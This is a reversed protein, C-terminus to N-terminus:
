QSKDSTPELSSFYRRVFEKAGPPIEEKTLAQEAAQQVEVFAGSIYELSSEPAEEPMGRQLISALMRGKTLPGQLTTPNFSNELDPLDGLRNGTGRGAGLLGLGGAYAGAYPDFDELNGFEGKWEALDAMTADMMEMQMLVADFQKLLVAVEEMALAASELDGNEMSTGAKELAKALAEGLESTDAGLMDAMRKLDKMLADTEKKSLKKQDLKEKLERAKKAADGMRGSQIHAALDRSMGLQSTDGALKPRAQDQALGERQMRLKEALNTLRAMARKDSIINNGLDDALTELGELVEQLEPDEASKDSQKLPHVADKLNKAHVKREEDDSKAQAVRERYRTLDFEPLFTYALGFLIIPVYVWRLSRSGALPFAKSLNLEKSHELADRHLAEVMPGPSDVLELSSTLREELGFREDTALAATLLTPRRNWAAWAAWAAVAAFLLACGLFADGFMPFLRTTTVWVLGSLSAVFLGRACYGILQQVAIRRCARSLTQTLPDM